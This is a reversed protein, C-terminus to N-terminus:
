PATERATPMPAMMVRGAEDGRPRRMVTEDHRGRRGGPRSCRGSFAPRLADPGGALPGHGSESNLHGADGADLLASGWCGRLRERARLRLLPRHPQRRAAVPLAPSRAAAARLRPRRRPCTRGSRTRCPSWSPAACAVPRFTPAAHAVVPVGLSHAVLVVPRKGRSVEEALAGGLTAARAAGLRGAGRAPGDLAPRGLPDALPRPRFQRPGARHPHRLRHHADARRSRRARPASCGGLITDVHKLHYGLDFLEELEADSLRAAVEGDAKLLTLFDGEGRWVPMANRQVLRYADERSVGKQTLALLVRQSHVLGGLRDLNRRM